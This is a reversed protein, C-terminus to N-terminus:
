QQFCDLSTPKIIQYLDENTIKQYWDVFDSSFSNDKVNLLDMWKFGYKLWQLTGVKWWLELNLVTSNPLAVSIGGWWFFDVQYEILLLGRTTAIM